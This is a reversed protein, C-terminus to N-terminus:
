RADGGKGSPGPPRQVANADRDSPSPSTAGGVADPGPSRDPIGPDSPNPGEPLTEVEVPGLRAELWAAPADTVGSTFCALHWGHREIKRRYRIRSWIAVNGYLSDKYSFTEMQCQRSRAKQLAKASMGMVTAMDTVNELWIGELAVFVEEKSPAQWPVLANIVLGQVPGTGFLHVDLPTDVTRNVGRGRGIAQEIQDEAISARVQEAIGDGATEGDVSIRKGAKDSLIHTEATFWGDKATEAVVASGTLAGAIREVTQPNPMPRGVVVLTRIDKWEDRGAIAGHHALHMGAPLPYTDRLWIEVAQPVILLTEGGNCRHLAMAHAWLGQRLTRADESLDEGQQRRLAQLNSHSFSKDHWYTVYQHLVEARIEAAAEIHPFYPRVLDLRLTASMVLVDQPWSPHIPERWQLRFAKYAAGTEKDEQVAIAINGSAEPGDPGLLHALLLWFTSLRDIERQDSVRALIRARKLPNMGPYVHKRLDVRRMGELVLGARRCEAGELGASLAASRTLPGNASAELLAQAKSRLPRLVEELDASAHDDFGDRRDAFPVLCPSALDEATVLVMSDIGALGVDGLDEDVILLRFSPLGEPKEQFLLAHTVICLDAEVLRQEQYACGHFAPCSWKGGKGCVLAQANGGKALVADVTELHRCMPLGSAPNTAARGHWIAAHKITHENTVRILVESTLRHEPVAYAVAGCGADFWTQMAELALRTKGVGTAVKLARQTPLASQGDSLTFISGDAAANGKGTWIDDLAAQMAERLARRASDLSMADRDPEVPALVAELRETLVEPAESLLADDFGSGDRRARRWPLVTLVTRGERRWARVTDYLAKGAPANRAEDRRCVLIPRDLPEGALDIGALLGDPAAWTEIGTAAAIACAERPTFALCLARRDGEFRVTRELRYTRGDELIEAVVPPQVKGHLSGAVRIPQTLRKFSIDGGAKEALVGRLRVVEVLDRGHAMKTVRWYLHRKRVGDPTLGGSVVTLTPPGLEQVLFAHKAEIDGSDLDVLLVATGTINKAVARDCRSLVAPVTFFARGDDAARKACQQLRLALRDDAPFTEVWPRRDSSGKEALMRVAVFGELGGFVVDTFTAIMQADPAPLGASHLIAQSM